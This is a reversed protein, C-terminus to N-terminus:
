AAVTLRGTESVSANDSMLELGAWTDAKCREPITNAAAPAMAKLPLAMM